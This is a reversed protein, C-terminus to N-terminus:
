QARELFFARMAAPSDFVHEPRGEELKEIPHWGWTIAVPVARARRAERMDGKTDGIYYPTRGRHRRRVKRIRKVKSPEEDGGIVGRVGTVGFRELFSQAHDTANSTVIYVPHRQALQSLVEPMGEFPRVHQNAQDIRPKFEQFLRKLRWLPFGMRVLSRIANGEFLKLFDDKTQFQDVGLERCVGMFMDLYVQGSDAIVGDFDLIILPGNTRRIWM